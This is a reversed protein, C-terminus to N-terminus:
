LNFKKNKCFFSAKIFNIFLPHPNLPTSKLEPHFQTGVFWDNKIFEIIEILGTQPNVGTNIMGKKKFYRLYKINFEYRHRHRESIYESNYAFFSNTNKKIKCFFSGLRMTGGIKKINKQLPMLDIVPFKTNLDYELSAAKNWNLVNKAFEIIACQMGLCIGFFAINNKRAYKISSIKGNIGKIGFGPAVLIGDLHSLFFSATNEFINKSSILEIKVKCKNKASAHILSENISKYSDPLETYKGIIGIKIQKNSKKLKSLFKKWILLNPKKKEKFSLKKLVIRSLGEKYMLIPIDYIINVDLAQIISDNEVNCFLSIKKRINQPIEKESRCILIDPQIGVSLLTKVSNQLPKTKIEKASKLYPLLALHLVIVNNDGLDWKLQRISEIFPLSEIDGVCGGIEVIVFDYKKRMILQFMKNKIEDTIHPIIQVTKGLYDGIREKKIVANYISGTTINNFKSTHVGLFREYHGLDLDTESGDETVYCEGHEYPNITGPDVNIYPDLKQITVKYGSTKLLAGLSASIIGKGLSSTVGGVVFIYKIELM